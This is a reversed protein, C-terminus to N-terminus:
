RNKNIFKDFQSAFNQKDKNSFPASGGTNVDASRLEEMFNRMGLRQKINEATYMYGRPSLAFGGREVVRDALPIDATIVLDGAEVMDVIRDDAVDAGQPVVISKIVSSKIRLFQNAVFVTEIKLREATKMIIERIVIPCADNDVFIKM